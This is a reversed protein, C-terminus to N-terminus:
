GSAAEDGASSERAPPMATYDREKNRLATWIVFAFMAILVLVAVVAYDDNVVKNGVKVVEGGAKDGAEQATLGHRYFALITLLAVLVLVGVLRFKLGRESKM